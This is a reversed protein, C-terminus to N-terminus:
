FGESADIRRSGMGNEEITRKKSWRQDRTEGPPFLFFCVERRLQAEGSAGSSGEVSGIAAAADPPSM